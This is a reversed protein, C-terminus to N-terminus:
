QTYLVCTTVKKISNTRSFVSDQVIIMDSNAFPSLADFKKAQCALVIVRSDTNTTGIDRLILHLVLHLVSTQHIEIKM